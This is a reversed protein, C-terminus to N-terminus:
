PSPNTVMVRVERAQGMEITESCATLFLALTLAFLIILKKRM